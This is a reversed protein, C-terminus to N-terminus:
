RPRPFQRGANEGTMNAIRLCTIRQLSWSKGNRQWEFKWSTTIPYGQTRDQESMISLTVSILTDTREATTSLIRVNKVGQEDVGRQAADLIEDRNVYLETFGLVSLSVGPDLLSKMTAWDRKEVSYVLQKSKTVCKELDTSVLYSLAAVAITAALFGLGANRVRIEQRSNGTWFLVVGVGALLTPLWWPADFILEAM